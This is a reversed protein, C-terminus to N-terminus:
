AVYSKFCLQQENQAVRLYRTNEYDQM